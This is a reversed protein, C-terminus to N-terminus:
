HNSLMQKWLIIESESMLALGHRIADCTQQKDTKAYFDVGDRHESEFTDILQKQAAPALGSERILRLTQDRFAHREKFNCVEAGGMINGRGAFEPLLDDLTAAAVTRSGLLLLSVLLWVSVRSDTSFVRAQAHSNKSDTLCNKHSNNM